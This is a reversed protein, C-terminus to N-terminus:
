PQGRKAADAARHAARYKAWVDKVLKAKRLGDWIEPTAANLERHWLADLKTAAEYLKDSTASTHPRELKKEIRDLADQMRQFKSVAHRVQIATMRRTREFPHLM